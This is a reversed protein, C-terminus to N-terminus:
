FDYVFGSDPAPAQRCVFDGTAATAGFYLASFEAAALPDFERCSFVDVFAGDPPDCHLVIASTTLRQVLVLTVGELDGEGFRAVIPEGYPTMGIEACLERAWEACQERSEVVSTRCGALQQRFQWGFTRRRIDREIGNLAARVGVDMRDDHAWAFMGDPVIASM